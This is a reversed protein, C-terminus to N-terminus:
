LQERMLDPSPTPRCCRRCASESLGLKLLRTGLISESWFILRTPSPSSGLLKPSKGQSKWCETTRFALSILEWVLAKLVVYMSTVSIQHIEAAALAQPPRENVWPTSCVVALAARPPSTNTRLLPQVSQAKSEQLEIRM